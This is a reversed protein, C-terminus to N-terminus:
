LLPYSRRQNVSCYVPQSPHNLFCPGSFPVKCRRGNEPGDKAVVLRWVDSDAGGPRTSALPTMCTDNVHALYYGLQVIGWDPSNKALFAEAQEAQNFYHGHVTVGGGLKNQVYFALADMVPQADESTGPQGPQIIVFDFSDMGYAPCILVTVSLFVFLMNRLM